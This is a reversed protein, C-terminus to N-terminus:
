GLTEVFLRSSSDLFLLLLSLIRALFLLRLARAFLLFVLSFCVLFLVIHLQLLDPPAVSWHLYLLILLLNCRQPCCYLVCLRSYSCVICSVLRLDIFYVRKCALFNCLHLFENLTKKFLKLHLALLALSVFAVGIHLDLLETAVSLPQKLVCLHVLVAELVDTGGNLQESLVQLGRLRDEILLLFLSHADDAFHLLVAELVLIALVAVAAVEGRLFTDSPNVWCLAGVTGRRM